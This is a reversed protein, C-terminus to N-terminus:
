SASRFTSASESRLPTPHQSSGNAPRAAPASWCGNVSSSSREPKKRLGSSATRLSAVGSPTSGACSRRPPWSAPPRWRCSRSTIWTCTRASWHVQSSPDCSSVISASQHMSPAFAQVANKGSAKAVYMATDANRLLEDAQISSNSLAVGISATLRLERDELVFGEDVADLIRAAIGHAEQAHVVGDLLVAFEDGGLRAATDTPRVLSDIRAAVHELLADGAGHGLSDNVTKFDDLDIFLVALPRRSRVGAALAHRLRDEFLARNALGTLADHFAQHRLENEMAVRESVDRMNLVLGGVAPDSFRDKAVIEVDIWRGDAHRLRVNVTGGGSGRATACLFSDFLQQDDPHALSTVATDLQSGPDVGLLGRASAAQWRVRLDRSLVTVVESADDVLARVRQESHREMAREKDALASRRNLSALRWELVSLLGVGLLMSGISLWLSRALAQAAVIQQHRAALQADRDMRDLIPQFQGQIRGLSAQSRSGAGRSAGFAELSAAFLREADRALRQADAGPELKSLQAAEGTLQTLIRSGEGVPQGSSSLDAKGTLVLTNTRWKLASMDQSSARIQEAVVQARRHLDSSQHSIVAAAVMALVVLVSVLGALLAAWPSGGSGSRRRRPGVDIM